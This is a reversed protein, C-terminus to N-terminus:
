TQPDEIRKRAQDLRDRLVAKMAKSSDGADAKRRARVIQAALSDDNLHKLLRDCNDPSETEKPM